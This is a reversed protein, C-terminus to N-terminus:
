SRERKIEAFLAKRDQRSLMERQPKRTGKDLELIEMKRKQLTAKEKELDIIRMEINRLENIRTDAM